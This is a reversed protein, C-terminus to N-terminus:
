FYPCVQSIVVFSRIGHKVRIRLGWRKNRVTAINCTYESTHKEKYNHLTVCVQYNLKHIVPVLILTRIRVFRNINDLHSCALSTQTIQDKFLQHRHAVEKRLVNGFREHIYCDTEKKYSHLLPSCLPISELFSLM